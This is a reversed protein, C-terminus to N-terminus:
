GQGEEPAAPRPAAPRPAAPRTAAGQQIREARLKSKFVQIHEELTRLTAEDESIKSAINTKCEEDKCKSAQAKLSAIKKKMGTIKAATVCISKDTSSLRRCQAGVKDIYNNYVDKAIRYVQGWSMFASALQLATDIYEDLQEKDEHLYKIYDNVIKSM